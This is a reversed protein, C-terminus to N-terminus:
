LRRKENKGPGGWYPTRGSRIIPNQHIRRGEHEIGLRTRNGRQLRARIESFAMKAGEVKGSLPSNNPLVEVCVMPRDIQPSEIVFPGESSLTDTIGAKGFGSLSIVDGAFAETLEERYLGNSKFIKTIKSKEVFKKNFNYASLTDGIQVRGSGLKGRIIKGFVQDHEIQSVLMKSSQTQDGILEPSQINDIIYNLIRKMGLDSTPDVMMEEASKNRNNKIFESVQELNEFSAFLKASTYFTKYELHEENVNLDFFLELIEEEVEEIRASPRDVKNIVVVPKLNYASAKELVYKTQRMTGETACVLLVVGDVMSLVREVEGGFDQHGPTDVINIMHDLYSLSTVKSEITIGKEIELEGSDM